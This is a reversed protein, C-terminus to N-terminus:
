GLLATDQGRVLSRFKAHVAAIQQLQDDTKCTLINFHPFVANDPAFAFFRSLEPTTAQNPILRPDSLFESLRDEWLTAVDFASNVGGARFEKLLLYL